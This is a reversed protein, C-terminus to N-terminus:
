TRTANGSAEFGCGNLVNQVRGVNVISTRNGIGSESWAGSPFGIQFITEGNGCIDAAFRYSSGNYTATFWMSSGALESSPVTIYGTANTAFHWSGIVSSQPFYPGSGSFAVPCMATLQGIVPIGGLGQGTHDSYVRLNVVRGPVYICKVTNYQYFFYVGGVGAVVLVIILVIVRTSTLPSRPRESDM